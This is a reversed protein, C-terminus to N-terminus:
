GAFLLLNTILVMGVENQSLASACRVCLPQMKLVGVALDWSGKFLTGM